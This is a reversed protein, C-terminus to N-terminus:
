NGWLQINPISNSMTPTGNGTALSGSIVGNASSLGSPNAAYYWTSNGVGKVTGATNNGTTCVAYLGPGVNATAGGSQQFSANAGSAPGNIATSTFSASVATTSQAFIAVGYLNSDASVGSTLVVTKLPVTYPLAIGYCAIKNAAAPSMLIPSGAGVQNTWYGVTATASVTCNAGLACAVGNVTASANSAAKGNLATQLDTQNSLTGTISGWAPTGGCGVCSTVNLTGITATTTNVDTAYVEPWRQNPDGIWRKSTDNTNWIPVFVWTNADYGQGSGLFRSGMRAMMEPSSGFQARNPIGFKLGGTFYRTGDGNGQAAIMSSGDTNSGFIETLISSGGQIFTGPAFTFAQGSQYAGTPLYSFPVKNMNAAGVTKSNVTDNVANAFYKSDLYFNSVSVFPAAGAKGNIIKIVDNLGLRGYTYGGIVYLGPQSGDTPMDITILPDHGSVEEESKLGLVTLTASQMGNFRIISTANSDGSLGRLVAAGQFNDLNVGFQGASNVTINSIESQTAFNGELKLDSAYCNGLELSKLAATEGMNEVNICNGATQSAKNGDMHFNEISGWHWWQANAGTGTGVTSTAIVDANLGAGANVNTGHNPSTGAGVIHSGPLAIIGATVTNNGNNYSVTGNITYTTAALRLTVSDKVTFGPGTYPSTRDDIVQGQVSGNNYAADIAAQISAYKSVLFGYAASAAGCGNCTGNVMLNNVTANRAADV